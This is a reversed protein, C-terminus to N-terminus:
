RREERKRWGISMKNLVSDTKGQLVFYAHCKSSCGRISREM